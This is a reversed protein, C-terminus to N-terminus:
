CLQDSRSRSTAAVFVIDLLHIFGGTVLSVVLSKWPSLDAPKLSIAFRSELHRALHQLLYASPSRGLQENPEVAVISSIKM